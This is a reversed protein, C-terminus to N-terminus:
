KGMLRFLPMNIDLMVLDPKINEMERLAYEGDTATVVTYGERELILRLLDAMDQEDDVVMVKKNITGVM